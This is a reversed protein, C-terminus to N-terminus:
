YHGLTERTSATYAAISEGKSHKLKFSVTM